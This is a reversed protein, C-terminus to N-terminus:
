NVEIEAPAIVKPNQGSPLPQLQIAKAQWGRHRVVGTYPPSMGLNGVVRIASPDYGAVVTMKEDEAAEVVAALTMHDNLAKRCKQHVERVAAGIQADPLAQIDEMLFDVLRGERQLIALLQLPDLVPKPAEVTETPKNEIAQTSTGQLLAQVQGAFVTQSLTRFFAKFAVAIRTGIGLSIVM